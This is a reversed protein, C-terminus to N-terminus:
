GSPLTGMPLSMQQHRSECSLCGCEGYNPTLHIVGHVNGNETHFRSFIHTFLETDGFQYAVYTAHAVFDALQILRSATSDAFLPVEVIKTLRGFRTGSGRRWATMLPQVTREYTAEDGVILGSHRYGDERGKRVFSNFRLALEEYIREIPDAKVVAGPARAVAFLAFPHGADFNALLDGVSTLLDRRVEGPISRWPGKGKRIHQAHLELGLLHSDLHRAMTAEVARVLARVDAEHVAVGGLVVHEKDPSKVDGSEDVYMLYM